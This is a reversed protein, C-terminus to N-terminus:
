SGEVPEWTPDISRAWDVIEESSTAAILEKIEAFRPPNPDAKLFKGVVQVAGQAM